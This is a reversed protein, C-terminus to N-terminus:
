RERGKQGDIGLGAAALVERQVVARLRDAEPRVPDMRGIQGLVGLADKSKGAKYLDRARSLLM